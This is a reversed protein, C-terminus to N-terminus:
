DSIGEINVRYDKMEKGEMEFSARVIGVSYESKRSFSHIKISGNTFFLEDKLVHKQFVHYSDLGMEHRNVEISDAIEDTYYIFPHYFEGDVYYLYM